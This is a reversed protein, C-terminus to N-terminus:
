RALRVIRRVALGAATEARVLYVGAPVATGRQDRGDWMLSSAIPAEFSRVRRGCVDVIDIRKLSAAGNLALAVRTTFPSPGLSWAVSSSRPGVGVTLRIGAVHWIASASAIWLGQDHGETVDLVADNVDTFVEVSDVVDTTGPRLVVRRVVTENYCGFFINGDYAPLSDGRYVCIGTPAITPTISWMPLMTGAPQTGCTTDAPGWGYNAGMVFHEVKDDCTPGNDTFYAEGTAPDFAFGYSNRVGYVAIPNNPGLPNDPPIQGMPTLRLVKGLPNSSSTDQANSPVYQDGVTMYLLGDRGFVLRGGEHTQSWALINDFLVTYHTGVGASDTMRVLRNRFNDPNTHYLYVYPSDPFNPHFALGELGWDGGSKVPVTAWVTPTSTSLTDHFVMVRGSFVECYFLRGDPAFRLTGPFDLQDHVLKAQVM